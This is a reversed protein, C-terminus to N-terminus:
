VKATLANMLGEAAARDDPHDTAVAWAEVHLAFGSLGGACDLAREIVDKPLIGLLTKVCEAAHAPDSLVPALCTKLSGPEMKARVAITSTLLSRAGVTAAHHHPRVLALRLARQFTRVLAEGTEDSTGESGRHQLIVLVVALLVISAREADNQGHGRAFEGQRRGPQLAVYVADCRQLVDPVRVFRTGLAQLLGDIADTHAFTQWDASNSSLLEVFWEFLEVDASEDVAVVALACRLAGLGSAHSGRAATEGPNKRRAHLMRLTRAAPRASALAEELSVRAIAPFDVRYTRPSNNPASLRVHLAAALAIGDERALLVGWSTRFFAPLEEDRLKAVSGDPDPHISPKPLVATTLAQAHEVVRLTLILAASRGTWQGSADFAASAMALWRLLADADHVVHSGFLAGFTLRGDDWRDMARFWRDPDADRLVSGPAYAAVLPIAAGHEDWLEFPDLIKWRPTPRYVEVPVERGAARTPLAPPAEFVLMWAERAAPDLADLLALVEGEFTELVWAPARHLREASRQVREASPEGSFAQIALCRAIGFWAGPSRMDLGGAFNTVDAALETPLDSDGEGDDELIKTIGALLRSPDGLERFLAAGRLRLEAHQREWTAPESFRADRV